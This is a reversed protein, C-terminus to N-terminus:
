APVARPQPNDEIANLADCVMQVGRPRAVQYSLVFSHTAPDSPGSWDWGDGTPHHLFGEYIKGNGMWVRVNAGEPVDCARGDHDIIPGWHTM